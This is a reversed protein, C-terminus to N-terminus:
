TQKERGYSGINAPLIGCHHFDERSGGRDSPKERHRCATPEAAAEDALKPIPALL